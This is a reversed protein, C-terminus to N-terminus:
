TGIRLINVKQGDGNYKTAAGLVAQFNIIIIILIAKMVCHLDRVGPGGGTGTGCLKLMAVGKRAKAKLNDYKTNIQTASRAQM